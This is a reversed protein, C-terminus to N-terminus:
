LEARGDRSKHWSMPAHLCGFLGKGKNQRVSSHEGAKAGIKRRILGDRGDKGM